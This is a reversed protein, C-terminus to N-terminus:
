KRWLFSKIILLGGGICFLLLYIPTTLIFHAAQQIIYISISNIWSLIGQDLVDILCINKWIPKTGMFMAIGQFCVLLLAGIVSISGILNLKLM